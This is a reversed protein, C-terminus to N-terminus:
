MYRYFQARGKYRETSQRINFHDFPVKVFFYQPEPDFFDRSVIELMSSEQLKDQVNM